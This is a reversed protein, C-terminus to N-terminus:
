AEVSLEGTGDTKIAGLLHNHKTVRQNITSIHMAYLKEVQLPV